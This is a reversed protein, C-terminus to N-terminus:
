AWAAPALTFLPANLGLSEAARPTPESGFDVDYDIRETQRHAERETGALLVVHSGGAIQDSTQVGLLDDCVPSIIGVAQAIEDACLAAVRDNRRAPM